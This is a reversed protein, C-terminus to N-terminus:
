PQERSGEDGFEFVSELKTLALLDALQRSVRQLILHAGRTHAVSNSEALEGLGSSDVYRINGVDLVVRKDGRQVVQRIRDALVMRHHNRMTLDGSISLVVCGDGRREIIDM